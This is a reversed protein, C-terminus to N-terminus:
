HTIQDITLHTSNQLAPLLRWNQAKAEIIYEEYHLRLISDKKNYEFSATKFHQDYDYLELSNSVNNVNFYYEKRFGDQNELILYNNRHIYLYKYPFSNFSLTDGNIETSNIKYVGHLFPRESIDDNYNGSNVYPLIVQIFMLGIIFLKIGSRIFNPLHVKFDIRQLRQNQQLILFGYLSKITASMLYVSAFFLFLSFSKVSIDFGFNILLIHFFVITSILIGLTRTPRFLLLLATLVEIIGTSVSYFRSTGITSWFLIDKSLNGFREYLINPEPLYFQAKFVKDFGYKLLIFSLYYAIIIRIFSNIEFSKGASYHIFFGVCGSILFLLLLLINLSITDSSFDPTTLAQKFLGNQLFSVPHYFLFITLQKQFIGGIFHVPIFVIGFLFFVGFTTDVFRKM